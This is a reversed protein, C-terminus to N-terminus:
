QRRTFVRLPGLPEREDYHSWIDRFGADGMYFALDDFQQGNMGFRREAREVFVISPPREGLDEVVMQRQLEAARVVNELQAADELEDRRAYAALIGQTASRSSFDAMTYSGTPFAPYPHTSFAFFYSDHTPAYNDVLRIVEQRYRGISGSAINYQLYWRATTDHTHKVVPLALALIAVVVAAFLPRPLAKREGRLSVLASSMSTGLFVVACLLVPYAHYVFGKAQVFYSISYGAGGLLVVSHQHTWRRALLAILTGLVFGDSVSAYRSVVVSFDTPEFAWYISRMLPVTFELYQPVLVVVAVLYALVTSGLALSEIRFMSRWSLRAVLLCEVLLPVALFYPKIAFGIGALLGVATFAIPKPQRTGQLRVAASALYPMAFLVSLYERQGFSAGPALTAMAIFAIRWGITGPAEHGELHSLMFMLLSASVAFYSWFVLRVALAESAWGMEVLWAAPMSLWWALPPNPDLVDIGFRRGELLWRTSHAIWAVDHNLHVASQLWHGLLVAVATALAWVVAPPVERQSWNTKLVM